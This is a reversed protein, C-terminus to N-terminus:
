ISWWTNTNYFYGVKEKYEFYGKNVQNWDPDNTSLGCYGCLGPNTYRYVHQCMTKIGEWIQFFNNKRIEREILAMEKTLTM